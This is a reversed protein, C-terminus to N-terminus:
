TAGAARKLAYRAKRVIEQKIETQEVQIEVPILPNDCDRNRSGFRQANRRITLVHTRLTDTVFRNVWAGDYSVVHLKGNIVDVDALKRDLRYISIM